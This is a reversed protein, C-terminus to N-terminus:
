LVILKRHINDIGARKNNWSLPVDDGLVEETVFNDMSEYSVQKSYTVHAGDRKNEQSLIANFDGMIAYVFEVNEDLYKMDFWFNNIERKTFKYLDGVDVLSKAQSSHHSPM